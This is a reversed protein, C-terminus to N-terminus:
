GTQQLPVRPLEKRQEHFWLALVLSHLAWHLGVRPTGRLLRAIVDNHETRKHLHKLLIIM